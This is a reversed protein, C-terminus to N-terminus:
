CNNLPIAILIKNVREEEQRRKYFTPTIAGKHQITSKRGNDEKFSTM